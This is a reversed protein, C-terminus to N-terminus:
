TENKFTIQAQYVDCYQTAIVSQLSLLPKSLNKQVTFLAFPRWQHELAKIQQTALTARITPLTLM